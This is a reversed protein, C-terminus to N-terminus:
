LKNDKKYEMYESYNGDFSSIRKNEIHLIRTAVKDVFYRDHSVFIVTGKFRNLAEELSQMLYIDLNNTPEDLILVNKEELAIRLINLRAKEGGSLYKIKKQFSEKPFGYRVLPSILHIKDKETEKVFFNMITQEKDIYKLEQDFYGIELDKRKSINGSSPEIKDILMKLLTSKGSGNEGLLCIREGSQIEQNANEFLIHDFKKELDEIRMITCNHLKECNFNIKIDKIFDNPNEGADLKEADNELRRALIVNSQNTSWNRREKAAALLRAKEKMIDKYNKELTEIYDKKQNVYDTFGCHWEKISKNELDWVKDVVNNLFYRDHSIVILNKINENIYGELWDRTTLDLNNTPEDLLYLDSKKSLCEALRLKTKQGGSLNKIKQELIAQNIGLKDLIEKTETQSVDISSDALVLNYEDMLSNFKYEDEYIEPKGIEAELEEKIKESENKKDRLYEEFTKDLEAFNQDQEMLSIKVDTALIRGEFSEKGALCNLLTTKGSGNKGIFAIKTNPHIVLNIDEFLNEREFAKSLEQISIM